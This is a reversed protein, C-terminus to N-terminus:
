HRLILLCYFGSKCICIYCTGVIHRWQKVYLLPIYARSFKLLDHIYVRELVRIIVTVCYSIEPSEELIYTRNLFHKKIM